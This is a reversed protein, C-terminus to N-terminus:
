HHTNHEFLTQFILALSPHKISANDPGLMTMAAATTSATNANAADANLRKLRPAGNTKM